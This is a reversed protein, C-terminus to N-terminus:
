RGSVATFFKGIQAMMDRTIVLTMETDDTEGRRRVRFPVEMNDGSEPPNYVRM